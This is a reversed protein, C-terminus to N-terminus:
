WPIDDGNADVRSAPAPLAPTDISFPLPPRQRISAAARKAIDESCPNLAYIAGNGFYRTYAAIAPQDHDWDHHKPVPPQEPVDVRVFSCGGISAETVRGAIQQHGFLEVIAWSEFKEQESV